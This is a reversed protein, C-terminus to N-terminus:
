SKPKRSILDFSNNLALDLRNILPKKLYKRIYKYNVSSSQSLLRIIVQQKQQKLIINPADKAGVVNLM